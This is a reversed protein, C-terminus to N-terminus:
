ARVKRFRVVAFAVGTDDALDIHVTGDSQNWADPPFSCGLGANNGSGGTVVITLDTSRKLGGSVGAVVTITRDGAPSSDNRILLLENGSNKFSHDNAADAATFVLDDIEKNRAITQIPIDVRAM